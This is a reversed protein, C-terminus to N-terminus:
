KIIDHVTKVAKGGVKLLEKSLDAAFKLIM